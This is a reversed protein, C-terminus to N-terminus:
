FTAVTTLAQPVMPRLGTEREQEQMRMEWLRLAPAKRAVAEDFRRKKDIGVGVLVAGAVFAACGVVILWVHVGYALIMAGLELWDDVAVYSLLEAMLFSGGVLLPGGAMLGLGAGVFAKVAAPNPLEGEEVLAHVARETVLNVEGSSSALVAIMMATTTTM